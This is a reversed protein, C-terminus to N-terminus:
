GLVQDYLAAYRAQGDINPHWAGQQGDGNNMWRQPSTSCGTGLQADPELREMFPSASAMPDAYRYDKGTDAAVAAVGAAIKANTRTILDAFAM